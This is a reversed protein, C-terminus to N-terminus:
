PAQLALRSLTRSPGPMSFCELSEVSVFQQTGPINYKLLETGMEIQFSVQNSFYIRLLLVINSWYICADVLLPFLTQNLIYLLM